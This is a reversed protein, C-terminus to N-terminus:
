MKLKFFASCQSNKKAPVQEVGDVSADEATSFFSSFFADSVFFSQFKENSVPFSLKRSYIQWGILRFLGFFCDAYLDPRSWSLMNNWLDFHRQLNKKQFKESYVDSKFFVFLRYLNNKNYLFQPAPSHGWLSTVKSVNM